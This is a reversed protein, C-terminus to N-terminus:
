QVFSTWCSLPWTKPEFNLNTAFQEVPANVIGQLVYLKAIYLLQM